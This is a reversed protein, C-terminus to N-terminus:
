NIPLLITFTTGKGVQSEFSIQGKHKEIIKRTIDLGLGTGEGAAKTTFFPKFVKEKIDDPIGKGTDSLSIKIYNDIEKVGITIKGKGEIAQISNHLLNTWVQNLEDAFVKINRIPEYNKIITINQKTKNHYLTLVTEITNTIDMDTLKDTDYQHSYNRLASIIKSARGVAVTINESSKQQISLNYTTELIPKANESKYLKDFQEYNDFIEMESLMDAVFDANEYNKSELNERINRKLKRVERSTYHSTNKVSLDLLATMQKLEDTSIKKILAPLNTLSFKMGENVNNISSNIAGLPTNLEHAISTILQGLSAMKESEVLHSQTKKLNKLTDELEKKQNNIEDNITRIEENAQKLQESQAIIEENQQKIIEFNENLKIHAKKKLLYERLFLLALIIFLILGAILGTIWKKKNKNQIKLLEINKKKALLMKQYTIAKNEVIDLQYKLEDIKNNMLYKEAFEPIPNNIEELNLSMSNIYEKFYFVANSCEEGASTLEAIQYNNKDILDKNYVKKAFTKSKEYNTLAAKKNLLKNYTNAINFLTLAMSNTDAIEEKLKYSEEYKKLANNYEEQYFLNNAKNNLVIAIQKKNNPTNKNTQDAKLLFQESLKYNHKNSYVIALNNYTASLETPNNIKEEIQIIKEYTKIANEYNKQEYYIGSLQNSLSAVANNDSQQQKLEIGKTLYLIALDPNNQAQSITAINSYLYALNSTDKNQEKIKIAESFNQFALGFNNLKFNIRAIEAYINANNKNDKKTALLNTLSDLQNQLNEDTYFNLEINKNNKITTKNNETVERDTIKNKDLVVNNNDYNTNNTEFDFPKNYIYFDISEGKITVTAKLKITKLKQNNSFSPSINLVSTESYKIITGQIKNEGVVTFNEITSIIDGNNCVIEPEINMKASKDFYKPPFVINIDLDTSNNTEQFSLVEVKIKSANKKMDALANNNEPNLPTQQRLAFTAVENNAHFDFKLNIEKVKENDSIKQTTTFYVTKGKEYEIIKTLPIGNTKHHSGYFKGASNITYTKYNTVLIPRIEVHASTAFYNKPFNVATKIILTGGDKEYNNTFTIVSRNKGMEDLSGNQSFTLFVSFIIILYTLVIKKYYFCSIKKDKM